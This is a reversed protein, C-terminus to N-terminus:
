CGSYSYDELMGDKDFDLSIECENPSFNFFPLSSRGGAIRSYVWTEGGFFRKAKGSPKGWHEEFWAQSKGQLEAPDLSAELYPNGSCGSAGLEIWAILFVGLLGRYIWGTGM